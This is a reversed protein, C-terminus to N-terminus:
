ASRKNEMKFEKNLQKFAEKKTVESFENPIFKLLIEVIKKKAEIPTNV